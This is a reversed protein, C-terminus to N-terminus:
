LVTAKREPAITTGSKIKKLEDFGKGYVGMVSGVTIFAEPDLNRIIRLLVNTENKRCVVIIVKQAQKTYWGEANIVTVGRRANKGIAAAIEEFKPSFIMLQSSQKNGAMLLDVTYGMAVVVIYSYIVTSIGSGIFYSCGIIIFDCVILIRGYSITRYKNIIMAIIDTGGSSGGQLLCILVGIGSLVGGLISSLLKDESLGLIDTPLNEQMVGMCVAMMIVAYVTKVSFRWGIMMTAIILLLSNIAFISYALPIGGDAEGGSVYFILMAIGSVGGGIIKAPMIVGIWAFAYCLLGITILLYEKITVAVSKVTFNLM